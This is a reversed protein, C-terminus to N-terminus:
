KKESYDIVDLFTDEAYRNGTKQIDIAHANKDITVIVSEDMEKNYQEISEHVQESHYISIGKEIFLKNCDHMVKLWDCVHTASIHYVNKYNNRDM